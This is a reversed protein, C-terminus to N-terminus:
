KIPLNTYAIEEKTIYTHMNAETEVKVIEGLNNVKVKIPKRENWAKFSQIRIFKNLASDQITKNISTELHHSFEYYMTSITQCKFLHKSILEYNKAKIADNLEELKLNFVFMENRQISSVFKWNDNPLKEKFSETLTNDPM